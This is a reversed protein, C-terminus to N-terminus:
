GNNLTQRRPQYLLRTRYRMYLAMLQNKADAELPQGTCKEAWSCLGTFHIDKPMIGAKSQEALQVLVPFIAEQKVEQETRKAGSLEEISAKLMDKQAALPTSSCQQSIVRNKNAMREHLQRFFLTMAATNEEPKSIGQALTTCRQNMSAVVRERFIMLSELSLDENLIETLVKSPMMQNIRQPHDRTWELWLARVADQIEGPSSLDFGVAAAQVQARMKLGCKKACENVTPYFKYLPDSMRAEDQSCLWSLELWSVSSWQAHHDQVYNLIRKIWPIRQSDPLDSQLSKLLPQLTAIIGERVAEPNQDVLQEYSKVLLQNIRRAKAKVSDLKKFGSGDQAIWGQYYMDSLRSKHQAIKQNLYELRSELNAVLVTSSGFELELLDLEEELATLRAEIDSEDLDNGVFYQLNGAVREPSDLHDLIMTLLHQSQAIKRSISSDEIGLASQRVRLEVLQQNIQDKAGVLSLQVAAIVEDRNPQMSPEDVNQVFKGHFRREFAQKVEYSSEQESLTALLNKLEAQLVKFRTSEIKRKYKPLRHRIFFEVDRSSSFLQALQKPQDACTLVEDDLVEGGLSRVVSDGRYTGYAHSVEPLKRSHEIVREWCDDIQSQTQAGVGRSTEMEALEGLVDKYDKEATRQVGLHGSTIDEGLAKLRAAFIELRREESDFMPPTDTKIGSTISAGFIHTLEPFRQMSEIMDQRLSENKLPDFLALDDQEEVSEEVTHVKPRAKEIIAPVAEPDESFFPMWWLEPPEPSSIVPEPSSRLSDRVSADNSLLKKIIFLPAMLTIVGCYGLERGFASIGRVLHEVLLAAGPAIWHLRQVGAVGKKWLGMVGKCIVGLGSHGASAIKELGAKLVSSTVPQSAKQHVELMAQEVNDSMSRFLQLQDNVEDVFQYYRQLDLPHRNLEGQLDGLGFRINKLTKPMDMTAPSELSPRHRDLDLSVSGPVSLPVVNLSLSQMDMEAQDLLLSLKNLYDAASKYKQRGADALMTLHESAKILMEQLEALETTFRYHKGQLKEFERSIEHIKQHHTNLKRLVSDPNCPHEVALVGVSQQLQSLEAALQQCRSYDADDVTPLMLQTKDSLDSLVWASLKQLQSPLGEASVDRSGSVLQFERAFREVTTQMRHLGDLKMEPSLTVTRGTMNRADHTLADRPIYPSNEQERAALENDPTVPINGAQLGQTRSNDGPGSMGDM